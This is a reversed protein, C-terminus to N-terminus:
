GEAKDIACAYASKPAVIIVEGAGAGERGAGDRGEGVSGGGWVADADDDDEM